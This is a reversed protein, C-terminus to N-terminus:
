LNQLFQIITPLGFLSVIGGIVTVYAKWTTIQRDQKQLTSEHTAVKSNLKGLHTDIGELTTLISAQVSLAEKNDNRVEQVLEKLSYGDSM